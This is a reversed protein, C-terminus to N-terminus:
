IPEKSFLKNYRIRWEDGTKYQNCGCSKTKPLDGGSVVSMNGCDCKCLWRVSCRKRGYFQIVTLKGFREGTRDVYKRGGGRPRLGKLTMDLMNDLHTGLFLHDPNLCLKNDCHHCVFLGSHIKGKYLEYAVRHAKLHRQEHTLVGYGQMYVAGTWYWCGDPSYFIKEEFREQFTLNPDVYGM